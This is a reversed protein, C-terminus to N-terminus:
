CTALSRGPVQVMRLYLEDNRIKENTHVEFLASQQEVKVAEFEVVGLYLIALEDLVM